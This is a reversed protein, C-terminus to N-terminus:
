NLAAVFERVVAAIDESQMISTGVLFADPQLSNDSKLKAVIRKLTAPSDYGSESMLLFNRDGRPSYGKLLRCTTDVDTEFTRLNRNNIGIIDCDTQSVKRLGEITHTEVITELGYERAFMTAEDLSLDDKTLGDTFIEEIFLVASARIHKAAVIQEKSVVIDKMIIPLKTNSRVAVLNSISGRFNKPETLVSLGVAGGAEMQKAIESAEGHRRIEGASPSSFKVECILASKGKESIADTLKKFTSGPPYHVYRLADIKSSDYFGSEVTAIADEAIERLTKM